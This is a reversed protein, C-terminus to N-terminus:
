LVVFLMPITNQTRRSPHFQVPCMLPAVPGVAHCLTLTLPGPEGTGSQRKTVAAPKAEAAATRAADFRRAEHKLIMGELLERM